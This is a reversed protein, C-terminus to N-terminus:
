PGKTLDVEKIKVKSAKRKFGNSTTWSRTTTWTKRIWNRPEPFYEIKLKVVKM